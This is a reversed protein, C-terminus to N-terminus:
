SRNVGKRGNFLSLQVDEDERIPEIRNAFERIVEVEEPSFIVQRNRFRNGQPIKGEQRWRWLTQRTVGVEELVDSATLYSIENIKVPM